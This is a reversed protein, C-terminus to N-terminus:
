TKTYVILRCILNNVYCLILKCMLPHYLHTYSVAAHERVACTNFVVLDAENYSDCFTYGCLSLLGKIIESDSINQQCGYTVVMARPTKGAQAFYNKLAGTFQKYNLDPLVM